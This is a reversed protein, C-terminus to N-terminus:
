PVNGAQLVASNIVLFRCEKRCFPIYFSGFDCKDQWLATEGSRCFCDAPCFFM